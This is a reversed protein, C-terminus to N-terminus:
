FEIVRDTLCELMHQNRGTPINLLSKDWTVNAM